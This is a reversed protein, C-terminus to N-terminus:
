GKLGYGKSRSKKVKRMYTILETKCKFCFEHGCRACRARTHLYGGCSHCVQVTKMRSVNQGGEEEDSLWGEPRSIGYMDFMDLADQQQKTSGELAPQTEGVAALQKGQSRGPSKFRQAADDARNAATENSRRLSRFRSPGRTPSQLGLSNSSRSARLNPKVNFRHASTSSVEWAVGNDDSHNDNIRLGPYSHGVPPSASVELRTRQCAPSCLEGGERTNAAHPSINTGPGDRKAIINLQRIRSEVFGSPVIDDHPGDLSIADKLPTTPENLFAYAM